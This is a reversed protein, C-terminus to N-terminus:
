ETGEREDTLSFLDEVRAELARALKLALEVSPRYKGSEISIISQRSVGTAEALQQQTMEERLRRFEKLRNRLGAPSM